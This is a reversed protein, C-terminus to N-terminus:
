TVWLLRNSTEKNRRPTSRAQKKPVVTIPAVYPSKPREILGPELFKKIEEKM